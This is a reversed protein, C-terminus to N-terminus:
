KGKYALMKLLVTVAEARTTKDVPAFQDAGKGEIIGLKKMAAVAGKAWVPIDKDDAFGTTAASGSSQGLASAIMVAMEPRTIEADPRFSGDEYGSIIGAYVAQAVSKQAWTGIKAKDTFTLAAGDGQPKLVNMLIVAFEARTVTRDPKFTGDPYGNVIGADVAQKINAEAWHGSIDSFSITQKTNVSSDVGQGVGFVAYKTFHNVKVTITNDNVLGGVEVWTQKTEDYYFVSPKQNGKLSNPDFAFTLTIDKSFNESFNKLIEFVPSALVDKSTILKQTDTVKTITLQLDKNTADAPIDIKVADGLSVEGSKGVPLTLTGDTSTVTVTNSSSTSPAGGGSSHYNTYNWKAYLTVNATGMTFSTGPAYSTGSGDTATNWGAFTYGTKVLNGTNGYVSVTVGPAYTGSDTPVSGSTAGNGNYTVTYTPAPTPTTVPAATVNVNATATQGQYIARIVTTGAAIGNVVGTTSNVTAINGNGSVYTVGSTLTPTTGDSYTGYVVTSVTSGAQVSIPQNFGIGTLTPAAPAQLAKVLLKFPKSLFLNNSYVTATVTVNADGSGVSPPHVIGTSSVVAPNSSLWSISTGNAGSTPLTMNQTVNNASDGSAYGIALSQIVPSINSDYILKSGSYLSIPKSSINNIDSQIVFTVIGNVTYWSFGENVTNNNGDNPDANYFTVSSDTSHAFVETRDDVLHGNAGYVAFTVDVFGQHDPDITPQSVQIVHDVPSGPKTTQNLTVASNNPNAYQSNPVWSVTGDSVYFGVITKDRYTNITVSTQGSQISQTSVDGDSYRVYVQEPGNLTNGFNFTMSAINTLVCGGLLLLLLVSVIVFCYASFRKM